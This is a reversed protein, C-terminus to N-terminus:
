GISKCNSGRIGYYIRLSIEIVEDYDSVCWVCLLVEVVEVSVIM